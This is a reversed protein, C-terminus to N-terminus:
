LAAIRETHLRNTTSHRSSPSNLWAIAAMSARLNLATFVRSFFKVRTFSCFRMWCTSSCM